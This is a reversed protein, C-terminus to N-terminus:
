GHIWKEFYRKSRYYLVFLAILTLGYLGHFVMLGLLPLLGFVYVGLIETTGHTKAIPKAKSSADERSYQSTFVINIATLRALAHYSIFILATLLLDNSQILLTSLATYKLLFLLVLAIAGFAGIQSDKM